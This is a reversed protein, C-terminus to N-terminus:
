RGSLFDVLSSGRNNVGKGNYTGSKRVQQENESTMRFFLYLLGFTVIIFGIMFQMIKFAMDRQQELDFEEDFSYTSTGFWSNEAKQSKAIGTASPVSKKLLTDIDIEKESVHVESGDKARNTKIILGSNKNLEWQSVPRGKADLDDSFVGVLGNVTDIHVTM